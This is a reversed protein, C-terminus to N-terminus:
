SADTRSHTSLDEWTTEIGNVQEGHIAAITALIQANNLLLTILEATNADVYTAVHTRYSDGESTYITKYGVHHFHTTGDPYDHPEKFVVYKGASSNPDLAALEAIRNIWNAM